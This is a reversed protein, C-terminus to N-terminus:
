ERLSLRSISDLVDIRAEIQARKTFATSLKAFQYDTSTGM